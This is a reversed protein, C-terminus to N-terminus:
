HSHLTLLASSAAPAGESHRLGTSVSPHAGHTSLDPANTRNPPSSCLCPQRTPSCGPADLVHLFSRTSRAPFKKKGDQGTESVRQRRTPKRGADPGKISVCGWDPNM